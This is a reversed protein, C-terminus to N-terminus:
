QFLELIPQGIYSAGTTPIYQFGRGLPDDHRTTLYNIGLASYITAAIDEAAVPRNASWGPDAVYSADASTAGLVRGGKVGGGAILASHV